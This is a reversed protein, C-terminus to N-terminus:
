VPRSSNPTLARQPPTSTLQVKVIHDVVPGYLPREFKVGAKNGRVWVVTGALGELGQLRVVIMQGAKVLGEGTTVGCGDTSLDSLIIDSQRGMSSRCSATVWVPFRM